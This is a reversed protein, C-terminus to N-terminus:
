KFAQTSFGENLAGVKRLHLYPLPRSATAPIPMEWCQSMDEPLFVNFNNIRKETFKASPLPSPIILQNSISFFSKESAALMIFMALFSLISLPKFIRKVTLISLATLRTNFIATLISICFCLIPTYGFRFDPAKFFWLSIAALMTIYFVIYATNEKIFSAGKNLTGRISYVFSSFLSIILVIFIIKDYIRKSSFWIPFWNSIPMKVVEECNKGAIKAWGEVACDLHTVENLPLKWDYHFVDALPLPYLVYGTLIINRIIWPGIIFLALLLYTLPLRIRNKFLVIFFLYAPMILVTIGSLKITLLFLSLVWILFFNTDALSTTGIEIKELFLTFIIWTFYTSALDAAPGMISFYFLFGPLLLCTQLLISLSYKGKLLQDAGILAFMCVVIFLLGNLDDSFFSKIFPFSFLAAVLHWSSNLGLRCELNALGPVVPYLTAWKINQIYYLGEDYCKTPAACYALGTFVALGFLVPLLKDANKIWLACSRIDSKINQFNFGNWLLCSILISLFVITNIGSFLSIWSTVLGLFSFGLLVTLPFSLKIDIKFIKRAIFTSFNGASYAMACVVLYILLLILM